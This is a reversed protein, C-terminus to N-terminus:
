ASEQNVKRDRPRQSRRREARRAQRHVFRLSATINRPIEGAYLKPPDDLSYQMVFVYGDGIAMRGFETSEFLAANHPILPYANEIIRVLKAGNNLHFSIAPDKIEGRIVKEAYEYVDMNPPKARPTSYAFLGNKDIPAGWQPRKQLERAVQRSGMILCRAIDGDPAAIWFDAAGKRPRNKSRRHMTSMAYSKKPLKQASRFPVLGSFVAGAIHHEEDLAVLSFPNNQLGRKIRKVFDGNGEIRVEEKRRLRELNQDLRLRDGDSM